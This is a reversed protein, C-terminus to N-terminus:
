AARSALSVGGWTRAQWAAYKDFRERQRAELNATARALIFVIGAWGVVSAALAGANARLGGMGAGAASVVGALLNATWLIQEGTYNPHRFFRYPGSTVLVDAGQRAKVMSKTFDGIAALLLGAWATGVLVATPSGAAGCRASVLVPAAMCAYLASCSLVFPTRQLRNGAAVARTEV